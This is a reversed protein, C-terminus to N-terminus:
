DGAAACSCSRPRGPSPPRCYYTSPKPPRRPKGPVGSGMFGRIKAATSSHLPIAFPGGRLSFNGWGSVTTSARFLLKAYLHQVPSHPHSYSPVPIPGAPVLKGREVASGPDTCAARADMFLRSWTPPVRWGWDRGQHQLEAVAMGRAGEM